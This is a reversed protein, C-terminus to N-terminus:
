LPLLNLFFDFDWNFLSFISEFVKLIIPYIYSYRNPDRRPTADVTKVFTQEIVPASAVVDLPQLTVHETNCKHVEAHVVITEPEFSTGVPANINDYGGTPTCPNLPEFVSHFERKSRPEPTSPVFLVVEPTDQMIDVQCLSYIKSFPFMINNQYGKVHFLYDRENDKKFVFPHYMAPSHSM